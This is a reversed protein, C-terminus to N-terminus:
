TLWEISAPVINLGNRHVHTPSHCLSVKLTMPEYLQMQIYLIYVTKVHPRHDEDSTEVPNYKIIAFNNATIEQREANQNIPYEDNATGNTFEISNNAPVKPFHGLSSYEASDTRSWENFGQEDPHSEHDSDDDLHPEIWCNHYRCVNKHELRALTRVERLVQELMNPTAKFKIKKLAYSMGDLKNKAEIVSGFGGKGILRVFTFYGQFRSSPLGFNDV